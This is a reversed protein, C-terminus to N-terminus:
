QTVRLGQNFQNFAPTIEMDGYTREFEDVVAMNRDSKGASRGTSKAAGASNSNPIGNNYWDLILQINGPKFTTRSYSTVVERLRDLDPCGRALDDEKIANLRAADSNISFREYYVEVANIGNGSPIYGDVFRRADLFRSKMTVSRTAPEASAIVNAPTPKATTAREGSLKQRNGGKDTSGGSPQRVQEAPQPCDDTFLGPPKPFRSPVEKEYRSLKQHEHFGTFWLVTGERYEYEKVLGSEKWEEVIDNMRARLDEQMPCIKAFLVRRDGEILGDRDCHPIAWTFVFAADRSMGNVRANVSIGKDIFRGTAM